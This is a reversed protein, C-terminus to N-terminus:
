IARTTHYYNLNRVLKRLQDKTAKIVEDLKKIENQLNLKAFEQAEKNLRFNYSIM